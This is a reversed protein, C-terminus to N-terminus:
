RLFAVARGHDSYGNLFAPTRQGAIHEVRGDAKTLVERAFATALIEMRMANPGGEPFPVILTFARSADGALWDDPSHVITWGGHRAVEVSAVGYQLAERVLSMALEIAAFIGGKFFKEPHSRVYEIADGTQHM